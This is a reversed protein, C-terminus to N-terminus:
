RKIRIKYRSIGNDKEYCEVIHKDCLDNMHKVAQDRTLVKVYDIDEKLTSFLFEVADKYDDFYSVSVDNNSVLKLM